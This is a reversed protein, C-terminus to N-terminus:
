IQENIRPEFGQLLRALLEDEQVYVYKEQNSLFSGQSNQNGQM